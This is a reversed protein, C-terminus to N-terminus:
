AGLKALKQQFAAIERTQDARMKEAMQKVTPNKATPLYADIMSIAEEHHKIVNQYFARDYSTGTQPKLADAMAQHEPVVKPSYPDKFDKELMTVMHDLETDQAADVKQADAVAPSKERRDKTMHAIQILGKHHDSMMRLFDHDGDGTMNPMASMDHGVMGDRMTASDSHPVIAASDPAKEGKACAVLSTLALAGLVVHRQLARPSPCLM